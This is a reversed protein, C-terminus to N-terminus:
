ENFLQIEAKRRRTLGRLERLIGWRNKAKNYKSMLLAVKNMDNDILALSISGNVVRGIGLNYAFSMLASFQNATVKVNNVNLFRNLKREKDRLEWELWKSAQEKNCPPDSLKVKVGSPYVITGYGITPVNAPCLYPNAYFGEFRTILIIGLANTKFKKFGSIPTTVEATETEEIETVVDPKRTSKKKVFLGKIKRWLWKM